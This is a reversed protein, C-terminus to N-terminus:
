QCRASPGAYGGTSSSGGSGFTGGL